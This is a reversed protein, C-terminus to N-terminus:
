AGEPLEQALRRITNRIADRQRKTFHHLKLLELLTIGDLAVAMTMALGPDPTSRALRGYIDGFFAQAPGLLHPYSSAAGLLSSFVAKDDSPMEFTEACLWSVYERTSEGATGARAASRETVSSMLRELLAGLLEDKTKFHYILGGKTVGAAAAVADITLERAGRDRIIAEAADLLRDRGSPRPTAPM